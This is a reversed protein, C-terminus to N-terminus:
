PQFHPTTLNRTSPAPCYQITMVGLAIVIAMRTLIRTLSRRPPRAPAPNRKGLNQRRWESPTQGFRKKFMANFLGVHRYGCEYAVNIIKANSNALLQRAHELRFEIQRARLSAGFQERFLRSFHRESCHLQAALDTLSQAALEAQPIQGVLQRFRGRLKDESTDTEPQDTLRGSFAEAWIQLGACRSALHDETLSGALAAFKQGLPDKASHFVVPFGPNKRALEFQRCELLTLVGTLIQPLVTFYHLHLPGLQSARLTGNVHGGLFLVDGSTLSQVTVGSQLWYGQGTAVRLCLWGGTQPQWEASPPLEKRQLILHREVTM